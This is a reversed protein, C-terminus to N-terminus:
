TRKSKIKMGSLVRSQSQYLSDTQPSGSKPKCWCSQIPFKVQSADLKIMKIKTHEYDISLLRIRQRDAGDAFQEQWFTPIHIFGKWISVTQAMEAAQPLFVVARRWRLHEKNMLTSFHSAMSKDLSRTHTHESVSHPCLGTLVTMNHSGGM